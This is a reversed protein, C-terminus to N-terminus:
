MVLHQKMGCHTTNPSKKEPTNTSQWQTFFWLFVCLCRKYHILYVLGCMHVNRSSSSIIQVNWRALHMTEVPAMAWKSAQPQGHRSFLTSATSYQFMFPTDQIMWCAKIYLHVRVQSLLNSLNQLFNRSYWIINKITSLCNTLQTLQIGQLTATGIVILLCDNTLCQKYILELFVTTWFIYPHSTPVNTSATPSNKNWYKWQLKITSIKAMHWTKLHLLFSNEVTTCQFGCCKM